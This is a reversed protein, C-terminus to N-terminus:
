KVAGDVMGKIIYKQAFLFLVVVPIMAMLAATMILNWQKVYAGAFATVALPITQITGNGGLVLLPLLYDNWIWIGNLIMVTVMVPKLLPFVIRFFVMPPSCGDITASEELALPIGRIFGHFIFITMSCGFGLYAFVIGHYTSLMPVGVTDGIAKLFYVLPYMVVQFPIVMAAVFLMFLFKSIKNHNRALVWAAMSSFIVLSALSFVTIITSDWFAGAVDTIPDNVVNNINNMLQSWNSPMALASNLVEEYTKSSNFVVVIFPLLVVIFLLIALTEMLVAKHKAHKSRQGVADLHLADAM